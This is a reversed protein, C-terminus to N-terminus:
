LHGGPGGMINLCGQYPPVEGRIASPSANYTYIIVDVVWHSLRQKSLACGSRPGGYCFFLQDSQRYERNYSCLSESGACSVAM